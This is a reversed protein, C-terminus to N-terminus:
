SVIGEATQLGATIIIAVEMIGIAIAKSEPDDDNVAFTYALRTIYSTVNSTEEIIADSRTKGSEKQSLECFHWVTCVFAPIVLVANVIAGTARGDGVKLNKMINTTTGFRKQAPGSFILKSLIVSGTTVKGIWSIVTNEVPDKPVLFNTIGLTGASLVGVVASPIGWDSDGTDEAAEFGSTLTSVLILFAAVEHGVIFVTKAVEDPITFMGESSDKESTIENTLNLSKGNSAFLSVQSHGNFAALLTDFDTTNILFATNQDDAFPAADHAIKYGITVPVAAIYAIIDLFSVQPVGFDELIDSVVPIHIPSDLTELISSALEFLIDLLADVINQASEIVTDAIIAIIKKLIEGLSLSHYNGILEQFQHLAGDIIAGENKLAQFLTDIPGQNPVPPNIPTKHTIGSANNTFHHSILSGPANMKSTPKSSSKAPSTAASGLGSWDDIGAWNNIKKVMDQMKEDFADKVVEIQDIEHKLYVKLFNKIVNKTRTIDEWDFLFSLFKILDEIGTKIANFIWKAAGAIAEVCDLVGQYVKDAIKVIFHWFGTLENKVIEVVHEIGSELWRFLDGIEMVINEGISTLQSREGIAMAHFSAHLTPTNIAKHAQALNANAAAVQKLQDDSIASSVLKSSTGDHNQITASKLKDATDLSTIKNLPKEMPDITVPKGGKESIFIKTGELNNVLEVITLSGLVDTSVPIPTTDLVYYLHNIYVPVRTSASVMLSENGVPQHDPGNLQVRSTYSNFCKAKDTIPAILKVSNFKWITNEPSQIATTLKNGAVAFLTNASNKKNIYPSVQEVGELIPAPVSWASSDTINNIPCSTYFIQDDRNIGWVVAKNKVTDNYAFLKKVDLFMDSKLVTVGNAGDNQNNSAFYILSNNASVFLDTFQGSPLVALASAGSPVNMRSITVPGNGFAQYLPAYLLEFTGNISGLTYIGDVREGAMMGLASQNTPNLDGGIVMNNWYSGKAKTPDIYYREIFNSPLKFTSKSIDVVIYDVWKSQAVFVNEIEINIGPHRTDDYSMLNWNLNSEKISGAKNDINSAIYLCDTKGANIVLAINLKGSLPHSSIAFTKAVAGPVNITKILQTTLDTRQWGTKHEPSQEIMNFVGNTDIAFLLALGEDTQLAQFKKQPSIEEAQIYNQMLECSYTLSNNSTMRNNKLYLISVRSM